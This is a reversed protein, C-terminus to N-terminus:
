ARFPDINDGANNMLLERSANLVRPAFRERILGSQGFRGVSAYGYGVVPKGDRLMNTTVAAISTTLGGTPLAHDTCRSIPLLRESVDIIRM